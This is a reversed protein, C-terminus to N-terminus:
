FDIARALRLLPTLIAAMQDLAAPGPQLPLQGYRYEDHELQAFNEPYVVWAAVVPRAPIFPEPQTDDRLGAGLATALEDRRTFDRITDRYQYKAYLTRQDRSYTADLIIIRPVREDPEFVEIAIDPQQKAAAFRGKANYYGYEVTVPAGDAGIGEGAQPYVRDYHIVVRKGNTSRLEMTAGNQLVYNFQRRAQKGILGEGGIPRGEKAVVTFGLREVLAQLTVVVVWYEYLRNVSSLRVAQGRRDLGAVTSASAVFDRELETAIIRIQRYFRNEQLVTSLRRRPLTGVDTLFSNRITDAIWQRCAALDDRQTTQAAIRLQLAASQRKSGSRMTRTATEIEAVLQGNVDHALRVMKLCLAKVFRNEYTDFSPDLRVRPLRTPVVRSDDTKRSALRAKREEDKAAALIQLDALNNLSRPSQGVKAVPTAPKALPPRTPTPLPRAGPLLPAAPPAVNGAIRQWNAGTRAALALSAYTLSNLSNAPAPEIYRRLEQHPADIIKPLVASLREFYGRWIQYRTSAPTEANELYIHARGQTNYLVQDNQEKLVAVMYEYHEQNLRSVQFHINAEKGAVPVGRYILSISTDGAYQEEQMRVQWDATNRKHNADVVNWTVPIGQTASDRELEVTLDYIVLPTESEDPIAASTDIEFTLRENERLTFEGGWVIDRNNLRVRVKDLLALHQGIDLAPAGSPAPPFPAFRGGRMSPISM